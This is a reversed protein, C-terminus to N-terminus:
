TSHWFFFVKFVCDNGGVRLSIGNNSACCCFQYRSAWVFTTHRELRGEGSAVDSRRRDVDIAARKWAGQPTDHVSM